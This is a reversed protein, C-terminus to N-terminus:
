SNEKENCYSKIFNQKMWRSFIPTNNLKIIYYENANKESVTLRDGEKAWVEGNRTTTIHFSTKVTLIM